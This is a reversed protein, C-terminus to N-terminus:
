GGDRCGEDRRLLAAMGPLRGAAPMQRLIARQRERVYASPSTVSFRGPSPLVAALLAAEAPELRGAPKGFYREAAAGAGYVGPGFEAVNLYVELIRRKPWLAEIAVTLGAELMKRVWSQGRWLFLNKATQQSLTSAGRLRGGDRADALARGIQDFDFGHHTPFKQDEAAIVAVALADPLCAWDVWRHDIRRPEGALWGDLREALMFASTPPPVHRGAAVLAIGGLAVGAAM